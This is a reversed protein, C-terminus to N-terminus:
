SSLILSKIGNMIFYKSNNYYIPIIITTTFIVFYVLFIYSVEFRRGVASMNVGGPFYRSILLM